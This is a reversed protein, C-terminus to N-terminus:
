YCHKNVFKTVEVYIRSLTKTILVNENGHLYNVCFARTFIEVQNIKVCSVLVWPANSTDDGEVLQNVCEVFLPLLYCVVAAFM